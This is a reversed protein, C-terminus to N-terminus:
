NNIILEFSRRNDESFSAICDKFFALGLSVDSAAYCSTDEILEEHLYAPLFSRCMIQGIGDVEIRQPINEIRSSRQRHKTTTGVQKLAGKKLTKTLADRGKKGFSGLQNEEPLDVALSEVKQVVLIKESSGIETWVLGHAPISLGQRMCYLLAVTFKKFTCMEITKGVVAPSGFCLKWLVVARNSFVSIQERDYSVLRLMRLKSQPTYFSALCETYIPMQHARKQQSHYEHLSSIMETSLRLMQEENLLVRVEKDFLIDTMIKEAVSVLYRQAEDIIMKEKYKFYNSESMRARKEQTLQQQDLQKKTKTKVIVSDSSSNASSSEILDPVSDVDEAEYDIEDGDDDRMRKKLSDAEQFFAQSPLPPAVVVPETLKDKEFTVVRKKKLRLTKADRNEFQDRLQELEMISMRFQYGAQARVVTDESSFNKSTVTADIFRKSVVKGSFVCVEDIQESTSRCPCLNEEHYAKGGVRKVKPVCEHVAAHKLCGYLDLEASLTICCRETYCNEDCDACTLPRDYVGFHNRVLTYFCAILLRKFEAIKWKSKSAGHLFHMIGREVKRRLVLVDYLKRAQLMNHASDFSDLTRHAAEHLMKGYTVIDSLDLEVASTM